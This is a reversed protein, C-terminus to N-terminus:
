NSKQGSQIIMQNFWRRVINNRVERGELNLHYPTDYFFKDSLALQDSALVFPMGISKLAIEVSLIYGYQRQYSSRQFAPPMLWLSAGRRQVAESFDKIYSLITLSCDNKGMRHAPSFPLQSLPPLSPSWVADGFSDFDKAADKIRAPMFLHRLKDAGYKPVLPLLRLWHSPSLLKKHEPMIDLVMMLLETEGYCSTGDFNAYEPILIVVDGKRVLPEVSKMQYILGLGAHLGMNYVPRKLAVCLNSTVFGQACGSGGVLIVREGDLAALRKLKERQAGLMTKGATEDPLFFCAGGLLGGLIALFIFSHCLFRKM